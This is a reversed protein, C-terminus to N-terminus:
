TCKNEYITPSYYLLMHVTYYFRLKYLNFMKMFDGAILSTFHAYDCISGCFFLSFTKRLAETKEAGQFIWM